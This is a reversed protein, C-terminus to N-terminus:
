RNTGRGIRRSMIGAALIYFVNGAGIGMICAGLADVRILSWAVCVGVGLAAAALWVMVQTRGEFELGKHAMLGFNGLLMALLMAAGMWPHASALHSEKTGLVVKAIPDTMVLWGIVIALIIGGIGVYAQRIMRTAAQIDGQGVQAMGNAHVAYIIPMLAVTSVKMALDQFIAFLGLTEPPAYIGLLFRGVYMQAGTLLFWLAMPIGFHVIKKSLEEDVQGNLIVAQLRALRLISLLWGIAVTALAALLTVHVVQFLVVVLLLPTIVRLFDATVVRIANLEAQATAVWIAQISGLMSVLGLIIASWLTAQHVVLQYIGMAFFAFLAIRTLYYFQTVHFAYDKGQATWQQRYRLTAQQLWGASVQSLLVSEFIMTSFQGYDAPGLIRVM